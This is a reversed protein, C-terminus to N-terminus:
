DVISARRGIRKQKIKWEMRRLTRGIWGIGLLRMSDANQSELQTETNLVTYQTRTKLKQISRRYQTGMNLDLMAIRWQSMVPYCPSCKAGISPSGKITCELWLPVQLSFSGGPIWVAGCWALCVSFAKRNLRNVKIPDILHFAFHRM